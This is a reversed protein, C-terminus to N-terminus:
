KDSNLEEEFETHKKLIKEQEVGKIYQKAGYIITGYAVIFFGLAPAALHTIITILLGVVFILGGMQKNKIANKSDGVENSGAAALELELKRSKEIPDETFDICKNEFNGFDGSLSCILGKKIDMKRNSCIRCYQLREEKTM